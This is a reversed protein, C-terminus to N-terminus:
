GCKRQYSPWAGSWLQTGIKKFQEIPLGLIRIRRHIRNLRACKVEWIGRANMTKTDLTVLMVSDCKSDSGPCKIRTGNPYARVAILIRENGRLVDHGAYPDPALTLGLIEAAVFRGVEDAVGLPRGTLRWYQAAARKLSLLTERLQAASQSNWREPDRSQPQNQQVEQIM